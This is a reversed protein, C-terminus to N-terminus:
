LVQVTEDRTTGSQCVLNEAAVFSHAESSYVLWGTAGVPTTANSPVKIWGKSHGISEEKGLIWQGKHWWLHLNWKSTGASRAYVPRGAEQLNACRVFVGLKDTHTGPYPVEGIIVIQEVSNQAPSTEVCSSAAWRAAADIMSPQPKSEAAPAHLGVTSSDTWRAAADRASSSSAVAAAPAHPGVESRETWREGAERAYNSTAISSRERQKKSYARAFEKYDLFQSSLLGSMSVILSTYCRFAFPMAALSNTRILGRVHDHNSDARAFSDEKLSRESLSSDRLDEKQDAAERSKLSPPSAQQRLKKGFKLAGIEDIMSSDAKRAPDDPSLAALQGLTFSHKPLTKPSMGPSLKSTRTPSPRRDSHANLSTSSSSSRTQLAPRNSEFSRQSQARRILQKGFKLAELEDRVSSNSDSRAKRAPDDPSLAALQGLSFTQKPRSQLQRSFKLAHAQVRLPSPATSASRTSYEPLGESDEELEFRLGGHSPSMSTEPQGESDTSSRLSDSVKSHRSSEVLSSEAISSVSVLLIM